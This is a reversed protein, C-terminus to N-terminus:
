PARPEVVALGRKKGSDPDTTDIAAFLRASPVLWPRFRENVDLVFVLDLDEVYGGVPSHHGGGRGFLPQRTFNITYRLSPDNTKRLEARFQELTLDRLATARLGARNAIRALADLNLRTRLERADTQSRGVNAIPCTHGRRSWSGCYCFQQALGICHGFYM